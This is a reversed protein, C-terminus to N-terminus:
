RGALLDIDLVQGTERDVFGSDISIVSFGATQLRPLLDHITSGGEYLRQLGMEIEILQVDDLHDEIGDLVSHEFGQVDVKLMVTSENPVLEDWVSDLSVVPVRIRESIKAEPIRSDLEATTKLISSLVSSQSVNLEAFGCAAGVADNRGEWRPDDGFTRTIESFSGPLPEFSVIRKAFGFERLWSVYQGSNAGVDLVLDVSRCRIAAARRASHSLDRRHIDYGIKAAADRIYGKADFVVQTDDCIQDGGEGGPNLCEGWISLSPVERTFDIEALKACPYGGGDGRGGPM